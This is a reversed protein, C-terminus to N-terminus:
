TNPSTIPSDNHKVIIAAAVIPVKNGKIKVLILISGAIAAPGKIVVM